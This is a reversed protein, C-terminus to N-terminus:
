VLKVEGAELDVDRARSEQRDAEIRATAGFFAAVEELERGGRGEGVGLREAAVIELVKIQAPIRKIVAKDDGVGGIVVAPTVLKRYPNLKDTLTDKQGDTRRDTWNSDHVNLTEDRTILDLSPFDTSKLSSVHNQLM